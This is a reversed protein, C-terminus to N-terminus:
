AEVAETLTYVPSLNQGGGEKIEDRIRELETRLFKEGQRFVYGGVLSGEKGEMLDCVKGAGTFIIWRYGAERARKLKDNWDSVSNHTGFVEYELCGRNQGRGWTIDPGGSRHIEVDPFGEIMMWGGIISTADFHLVGEPGVLNQKARGDATTGEMFKIKSERTWAAKTGGRKLPDNPNTYVFGPYNNYPKSVLWDTIFFGEEYIKRVEPRVSFGRETPSLDRSGIVDLKSNLVAKQVAEELNVRVRSVRSGSFYTANGTGKQMLDTKHKEEIHFAEMFQDVNKPDLNNFIILNKCSANAMEVFQEKMVTNQTIPIVTLRPARGERFAKAIAPIAEPTEIITAVEDLILYTQHDDGEEPTPYYITNCYGLIQIMIASKLSDPVKHIDFLMLQKFQLHERSNAWWWFNGGQTAKMSKDYLAKISADHYYDSGKRNFETLMYARTDTINPWALAGPIDWLEKNTPEGDIDLVGAQYYLDIMARVLFGYQRDNVGGFAAKWEDIVVDLWDEKAKRYTEPRTGMIKKDYPIILPNPNIGDPGFLSITGDNERFFNIYDTREKSTEGKPETVWVHDGRALAHSAFHCVWTTKGSGPPGVVFVSESSEVSPSLKIPYGTDVDDFMIVGNEPYGAEKRRLPLMAAVTRGNTYQNFFQSPVVNTPLALQILQLQGFRPIVSRVGGDDLENRISGVVKDVLERSPSLVVCVMAFAFYTDLGDQAVATHENLKKENQRNYAADGSSAKKRRIKANIIQIVNQASKIVHNRKAPALTIINHSLIVNANGTKARTIVKDITGLDYNKSYGKLLENYRDNVGILFAQACMDRNFITYYGADPGKTVPDIDEICMLRSIEYNLQLPLNIQENTQKQLQRQRRRDQRKEEFQQKLSNM